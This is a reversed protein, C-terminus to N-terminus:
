YCFSQNILFLVVLYDVAFRNILEYVDDKNSCFKALGTLNNVHDAFKTIIPQM